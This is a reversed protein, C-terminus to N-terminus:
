NKENGKEGVKIKLEKKKLVYSKGTAAFATLLLVAIFVLYRQM